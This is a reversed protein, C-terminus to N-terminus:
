AIPAVSAAVLISNIQNHAATVLEPVKSSVTVDNLELIYATFVINVKAISEEDAGLAAIAADVFDKLAGSTGDKADGLQAKVLVDVYELDKDAFEARMSGLLTDLDSKYSDYRAAITDNDELGDIYSRLNGITTAYDESAGITPLSDLNAGGYLYDNDAKIDAINTLNNTWITDEDNIANHCVTYFVGKFTSVYTDMKESVIRGNEVATKFTVIDALVENLDDDLSAVNVGAATTSAADTVTFDDKIAGDAVLSYNDFAAEVVKSFYGNYNWGAVSADALSALTDDRAIIMANQAEAHNAIEGMKDQLDSVYADFDDSGDFAATDTIISALDALNTVEATFLSAQGETTLDTLGNIAGNVSIQSDLISKWADAILEVHDLSKKKADLDADFDDQAGAEDAYTDLVGEFMTKFTDFKVIEAVMNKLTLKDTASITGLGDIATDKLGGAVVLADYETAGDLVINFYEEADDNVADIDTSDAVTATAAVYNAHAVYADDLGCFYTKQDPTINTLTAYDAQATANANVLTNYGKALDDILDLKAVLEDYYDKAEQASKGEIQTSDFTVANVQAVYYATETATFNVPLGTTEYAPLTALLAEKEFMFDIELMYSQMILKYEELMDKAEDKDAALIIRSMGEDCIARLTTEYITNLNEFLSAYMAPIVGANANKVETKKAEIVSQKFSLYYLSLENVYGGKAKQAEAGYFADLKDNVESLATNLNSIATGLDGSGTSLGNLATDIATFKGDLEALLDAMSVIDGNTDKFLDRLYNTTTNIQAIIDNVESATYYNTHVLNELADLANSMTTQTNVVGQLTSAMSNIFSVISNFANVLASDMEDLENIADIIMDLNADVIDLNDEVDYELNELNDSIEQIKDLINNIQASLQNALASAAADSDAAVEAMAAELATRTNTLSSELSADAAEFAAKLNDRTANILNTYAETIEAKNSADAAEFEDRLTEIDKKLNNNNVISIGGNAIIGGFGLVLAVTILINKGKM